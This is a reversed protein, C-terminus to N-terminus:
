KGDPFGRRYSRIFVLAVDPNIARLMSVRGQFELVEILDNCLVPRPYEPEHEGREAIHINRLRQSLVAEPVGIFAALGKAPLAAHVGPQHPDCDVKNATMHAAATQLEPLFCLADIGILDMVPGISTNRRFFSCRHVFLDQGDPFRCTRKRFFLAGDEHKSKNFIQVISLDGLGRSHRHACDIYM